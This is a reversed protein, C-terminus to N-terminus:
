KNVKASAKAAAKAAAKPPAVLEILGKSHANRPNNATCPIGADSCAKYYDRVTSGDLTLLIAQRKFIKSGPRASPTASPNAVKILLTTFPVSAPIETINSM